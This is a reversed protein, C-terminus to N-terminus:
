DDITYSEIINAHMDEKLPPLPYIKSGDAEGTGRVGEMTAFKRNYTWVAPIMHLIIVEKLQFLTHIKSWERQCHEM